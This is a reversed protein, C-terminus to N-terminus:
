SEPIFGIVPESKLGIVKARSESRQDPHNRFSKWLDTSGCPAPLPSPRQVVVRAILNWQFASPVWM